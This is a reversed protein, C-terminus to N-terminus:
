EFHKTFFYFFVILLALFIILLWYWQYWKNFLPVKDEPNNEM